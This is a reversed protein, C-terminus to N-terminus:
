PAGGDAPPTLVPVSQPSPPGGSNKEAQVRRLDAAYYKLFRLIAQQDTLSIGSAPQRRMRNVYLIWQEDDTINATLPRALSHCKSCKRAFVDYDARINDPLKTRDLGEGRECGSLSTLSLLLGTACLALAAARLM